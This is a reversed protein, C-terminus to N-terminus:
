YIYDFLRNIQESLELESLENYTESDDIFCSRVENTATNIETMGIYELGSNEAIILVQEVRESIQLMDATGIPLVYKIGNINATCPPNYYNTGDYNVADCYDFDSKIIKTKM